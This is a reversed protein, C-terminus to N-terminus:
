DKGIIITGDTAAGFTGVGGVFVAMNADEVCAAVAQFFGPTGPLSGPGEPLVVWSYGGNYTRAAYAGTGATNIGVVYGVSQTSFATDYIASPAGPLAKATWNDAKDLTYFFGGSTDGVFWVDKSHMWVAQNTGGGGTADGSQWETRNTTYVVTDSAGVAVAQTESIAHVAQLDNTTTVGADLVTVGITPDTTDYVYGGDGVIFSRTGVSWIDNPEGGGVFGTTVETWNGAVGALINAKTKYHLSGSDNSVVIVYQGLCAIASPAESADLTTIDDSAWTTGGDPSYIVDGATGPSGASADALAFIIQCGDSEDECDGCGVKDCIVVDRVANVVTDEARETLALPLVEYTKKATVPATEMVDAGEAVAGLPDTSWGTLMAREIMLIKQWGANFDMPDECTGMHGQLDPPCGQDKLRKLKSAIDVAYRGTIETTPDSPVPLIEGQTIFGGYRTPDPCKQPEPTGADEDMGGLVHCSEFSPEHDPRVGGEIMWLRMFGTQMPTFGNSM